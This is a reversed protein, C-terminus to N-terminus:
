SIFDEAKLFEGNDWILKPETSIRLKQQESPNGLCHSVYTIDEIKRNRNRHQHGYIHVKSHLDRIQKELRYCGAVRSFNFLPHPDQEYLPITKRGDAFDKAMDLSHFILERRPLFHSYSIIPADYERTILATNKELFYDAISENKEYVFEPWRCLVKDVWGTKEWNESIKKIFLSDQGEEPMRYWSLLPVLWVSDKAGEVKVPDIDVGITKCLLQVAEFKELSHEFNTKRLWLEHNGFVFCVRYFKKLLNELLSELKSLSDTVDGAVILVDNIYDTNSLSLMTDMNIPYDVHLDSIAFVRSM